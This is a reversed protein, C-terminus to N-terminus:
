MRLGIALNAMMGCLRDIGAVLCVQHGITIKQVWIISSWIMLSSTVLITTLSTRWSRMSSAARSATSWLAASCITALATSDAFASNRWSHPCVIADSSTFFWSTSAAVSGDLNLLVLSSASVLAVWSSTRVRPSIKIRSVLRSILQSLSVCM